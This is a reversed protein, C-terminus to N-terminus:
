FEQQKYFEVLKANMEKSWKDYHLYYFLELMAYAITKDIKIPIEEAKGDKKLWYVLGSMETKKSLAYLSLQATWKKINKSSQTKIDIVFASTERDIQGCYKLGNYEAIFSTEIGTYDPRDISAYAEIYGIIDVDLEYYEDKDMLETIKHVRTGRDAAKQLVDLPINEDMPMFANIIQTVSPIPKGQEDLTLHLEEIYM